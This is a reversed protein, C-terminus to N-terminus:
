ATTAQLPLAATNSAAASPLPLGLRAPAGGGGGGGCVCVVGGRAVVVGGCWWVVVVGVV